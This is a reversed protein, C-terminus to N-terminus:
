KEATVLCHVDNVQCITKGQRDKFYRDEIDKASLHEVLRLNYHSLFPEITNKELGFRWAENVGSVSKMVETEGYHQKEHRLVDAYIYDFAVRSTPGMRETMTQFTAHIAEPELYMSLGEMLFLCRKNKPFGIADLRESLSEKVFDIAEFKVNVPVPINNQHYLNLKTQQTHKADFEYILTHGEVVPFRIARTDFGAGLIVIQDVRNALAREYVADMYKTRAIIYPYIGKPAGYRCHLTRYFPIQILTKIPPPLIKLALTDGSQYYANKELSSAARCICTGEATRSTRTEIRQKM